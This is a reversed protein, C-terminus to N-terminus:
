EEVRIWNSVENVVPLSRITELSKRVAPEPAEHTVWIVETSGDERGGKQMVTRISVKNEGLVNAVSALVGPRDDTQMRIYHKCRVDDMTQMPKEEFCTCAIRGTCGFNINRAIDIIDGVVASGAAEPGAGRGYFMVNGIPEGTVYIGNYVDTVSVLPHNIPVMTPHVRVQMAGDIEKAIALLKLSYGLERAYAMDKQTVARIGERHVRSVDVRSTFGIAALIAIKYAADHGDVDNSPDREAYGREQADALVQGFDKGGEAMRTLIYNTTGNVIGKIERIVNGALCIKMPRIIPIGGGVSAEFYFDQKRAGAEVLLSHGEKAILEKNATVIHKGNKIAAMIYDYPPHVGGILEVVIDIEPNNVLEYADRVAVTRDFEIPRPRELDIDAIQKVVLKSGVKLEILRANDRLIRYAGCGVVGLGIIGINIVPKV